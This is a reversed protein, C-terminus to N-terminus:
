SPPYHAPHYLITHISFKVGKGKKKRKKRGVCTRQASRKNSSPETTKSSSSSPLSLALGASGTDVVAQPCTCICTRTRRRDARDTQFVPRISPRLPLLMAHWGTACACCLPLFVMLHLLLRCCCCCCCRAMPSLAGLAGCVFNGCLATAKQCDFVQMRRPVITREREGGMGM